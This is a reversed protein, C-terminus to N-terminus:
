SRATPTACRSSRCTSADLEDYIESQRGDRDIQQHFYGQRYLLTVGYAPVGLDSCSKLHDGALAGLGGSYIPLSEHICFEFSFYAVPAIALGPANVVGLADESELYDSAPAEGRPDDAGPHGRRRREGRARTPDVRKLFEIPNHNVARWLECDIARFIGTLEVNWSWWLNQSLRYLRARLDSM